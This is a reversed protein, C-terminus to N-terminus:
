RGDTRDRWEAAAQGCKIYGAEDLDLMLQVAETCPEAGIM